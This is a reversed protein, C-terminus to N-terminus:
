TSAHSLHLDCDTLNGRSQDVNGTHLANEEKASRLMQSLTRRNREATEIVQESIEKGRCNRKEDDRILRVARTLEVPKARPFANSDRSREKRKRDISIKKATAAGRRLDKDSTDKRLFKIVNSDDSTERM